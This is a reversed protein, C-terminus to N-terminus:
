ASVPNTAGDWPWVFGAGIAIFQLSGFTDILAPVGAANTVAVWHDILSGLKGDANATLSGLVAPFLLEGNGGQLAPKEAAYQTATGGRAGVGAGTVEHGMSGLSNIDGGGSHVRALEASASASYSVNIQTNYANAASSYYGKVAAKSGGGTTLTLTAPAILSSTFEEGRIISVQASSRMAVMRFQKKDTSAWFNWLRDLSATANVWSGSAIDFCEDTATPQQTATGAAVFNGGTSHSLRVIDDSASNFSFCWDVGAGDTLVIWSMPGAAGNNRTAWKNAATIRNVGDMAATTGDSSGKCTYGVTSTLFGTSGVWKFLLDGTAGLVSVFSYRSNVSTLWSKTLAPLGM